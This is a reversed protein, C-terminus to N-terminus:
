LDAQVLQRIDFLSSTFRAKASRLIALQQVFQPIAANTNVKIEAGLRAITGQLYDSIRYSEFDLLKRGKPKEYHSIFDALRHPLLQRILTSAESYWPQYQQKFSPLDKIWAGVVKTIAGDDLKKEQMGKNSDRFQRVRSAKFENPYEEYQVANLLSDARSLLANLDKEYRDLNTTM